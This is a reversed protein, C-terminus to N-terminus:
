SQAHLTVLTLIRQSDTWIIAYHKWSQRGPPSDDLSWNAREKWSRFSLLTLFSIFRPRRKEKRILSGEAGEERVVAPGTTFFAPTQPKRDPAASSTVPLGNGIGGLKKKIRHPQDQVRSPITRDMLIFGPSLPLYWWGWHPRHRHAYTMICVMKGGLGYWETPQAPQCELIAEMSNQIGHRLTCLGWKRYSSCGSFNWSWPVSVHPAGVEQSHLPTQMSNRPVEFHTLTPRVNPEIRAQCGFHPLRSKKKSLCKDLNGDNLFSFGDQRKQSIAKPIKATTNSFHLKKKGGYVLTRQRPITLHPANAVFARVDMTTSVLKPPARTAGKETQSTKQCISRRVTEM